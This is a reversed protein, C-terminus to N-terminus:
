AKLLFAIKAITSNSELFEKTANTSSTFQNFPSGSGSGTANGVNTPANM